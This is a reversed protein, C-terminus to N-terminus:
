WSGHPADWFSGNCAEDLRQVTAQSVISKASMFQVYANGDFEDDTVGNGIAYGQTTNLARVARTLHLATPSQQGLVGCLRSKGQHQHTARHGPPQWGGRRCGAHPHVPWRLERRCASVPAADAKTLRPTCPTHTQETLGSAGTIYFENGQLQTHRSFFGRLFAESDHATQTDNTRYDSENLSFSLGVASPSDLFVMTAVKNWAFANDALHVRGDRMSFSFPGQEYIM